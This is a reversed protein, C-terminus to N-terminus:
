PLLELNENLRARSLLTKQGDDWLAAQQEVIWHKHREDWKIKDAKLRRKHTFNEIYAHELAMVKKRVDFVAKRARVVKELKKPEARVTLLELNDMLVRQIRGLNRLQSLGQLSDVLMKGMSPAQASSDVTVQGNHTFMVLSMRKLYVENVSKIRFIGFKRPRVDLRDMKIRSVVRGEEYNTYELGEIQLPRESSSRPVAKGVSSDDQTKFEMQYIILGLLGVVYVLLIWKVWRVM